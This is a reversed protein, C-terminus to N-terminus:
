YIYFGTFCFLSPDYFLVLRESGDDFSVSMQSLSADTGGTYTVGSRNGQAIIKSIEDLFLPVEMYPLFDVSQIDEEFLAMHVIFNEFCNAAGIDYYSVEAEQGADDYEDIIYDGYEFGIYDNVFNEYDGNLRDYGEKIVDYDDSVDSVPVCSYFFVETGSFATNLIFANELEDFFKLDRIYYISEGDITVYELYDAFGSTDVQEDIWPSFDAILINMLQPVYEVWGQTKEALQILDKEANDWEWPFVISEEGSSFLLMSSNEPLSISETEGKYDPLFYQSIEIGSICVAVILVAILVPLAKKFKSM